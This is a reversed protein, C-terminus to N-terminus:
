KGGWILSLVLVYAVAVAFGLGFGASFMCMDHYSM